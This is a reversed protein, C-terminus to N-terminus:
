SYNGVAADARPVLRESPRLIRRTDASAILRMTGPYTGSRLSRSCRTCRTDPARTIRATMSFARHQASQQAALHAHRLDEARVPVLSEQSRSRPPARRRSAPSSPPWRHSHPWGVRSRRSMSSFCVVAGSAQGGPGRAAASALALPALLLLLLRLGALLRARRPLLSLRGGLRLGVLSLCARSRRWGRVPLRSAADGRRQCPAQGRRLRQALHLDNTVHGRHAVGDVTSIKLSPSSTSIM